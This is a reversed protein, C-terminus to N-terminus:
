DFTGGQEEDEEQETEITLTYNESLNLTGSSPTVGYAVDMPITVRWSLDTNKEVEINATTSNAFESVYEVNNIKFSTFQYISNNVVTLTVTNTELESTSSGSSGFVLRENISDYTPLPIDAWSADTGDTTLFKGSQGTQSPLSGIVINGSGLLSSNNVTKINTGSVLPAQFKDNGTSSLNSLDKNALNSTDPISLTVNGNIPAINNVSTVQNSTIDDIQTQIPDLATWHNAKWSEPTTIATNCEYAEYSYRVRDGVEYTSLTSYVPYPEIMNLVLNNLSSPTLATTSSTSTANAALKTYGYYTTTAVGADEMLWNTGDYTFAVVEGALWCYRAANTTGRSKVDIAGTSNVNLTPAGDYGQGNNFKVRISVGTKLETFEPCVVVKAQTGGSTECTGYYSFLSTDPLASYTIYGAPNTADYPTYGLAATVDLSTIGTIYGANNNLESINDNPQLSTAGLAAGSRITSLDSITNQKADLANQLDTQNSLTGTINGWEASTQTNSIVGNVISIGTGATYTTDTASIVNNNIQINAGATLVDQKNTQLDAINNANITIQGINTSTAGSNISAWQVATFSSNNLEYEYKWEQTDANYKYRDYLTNGATDTTAVFAYDNNTLTGTYAELEAVSNFTGIFNATNTAISSNVFDKDALQNSSSAQNPIKSNITTINGANTAINSTNATIRADLLNYNSTVTNSLDLIDSDLANKTNDIKTDLTTYNSSVTNSLSNISNTLTTNIGDVKNNIATDNDNVTDTLDSIKGDLDIYNDSVTDSLDSLNTNITDIEDDFASVVGDVRNNIATNNNTVTQSLTNINNQLVTDANQRALAESDINNQLTTDSATRDSIETGIKGDLTNYDDTVTQSLTNINNQLLTDNEARTAAENQIATNLETKDAKLDLAAQLDTQNSLEGSIGGWVAGYAYIEFLADFNENNLEFNAVLEESM